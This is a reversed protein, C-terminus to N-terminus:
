IRRRFLADAEPEREAVLELHRAAVGLRHFIILLEEGFRRTIRAPVEDHVRQGREPHFIAPVFAGALYNKFKANKIKLELM